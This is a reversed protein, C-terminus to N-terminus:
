RGAAYIDLVLQLALHNLVGAETNRDREGLLRHGGATVIASGKWMRDRLAAAPVHAHDVLDGLRNAFFCVVTTDVSAIGRDQLDSGVWAKAAPV